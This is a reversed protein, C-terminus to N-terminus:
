IINVSVKKDRLLEQLEEKRRRENELEENELEQKRKEADAQKQAENLAKRVYANLEKMTNIGSPMQQILQKFYYAVTYKTM